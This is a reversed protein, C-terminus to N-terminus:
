LKSISRHVNLLTSYERGKGEWRFNIVCVREAIAAISECSLRSEGEAEVKNGRYLKEETKSTRLGAVTFDVPLNFNVHDVAAIPLDVPKNTMNLVSRKRTEEGDMEENLFEHRRVNEGVRTYM